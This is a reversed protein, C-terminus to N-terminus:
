ARALARLVARQTLVQIITRRYDSSGRIDDIPLSDAAAAEGAQALLPSGEVMSAIPQGSLASSAGASLLPTPAVAGIVIRAETCRDGDLKLAVAVSAVSIAAAGRMGFKEYWSALRTTGRRVVINTMLEGKQLRTSRHNVFFEELPLMRTTGAGTIEVEASLAMLMPAMDSCSAATCLNGGITGVNRIQDTGITGAAEAIAPFSDIVVQSGRIANHTAASGIFLAREDVSIKRLEAIGTLSVLDEHRRGGQKIEVLLDTGGALPAADPRDTLIRCADQVSLPKHFNFDPIYM